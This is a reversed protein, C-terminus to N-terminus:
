TIQSCAGLFSSNVIQKLFSPPPYIKFWILFEVLSFTINCWFQFLLTVINMNKRKIKQKGKARRKRKKVCGPHRCGIFRTVVRQNPSLLGNLKKKKKEKRKVVAVIIIIVVAFSLLFIHISSPFFFAIIVHNNICVFYYDYQTVSKCPLCLALFCCSLAARRHRHTSLRTKSARWLAWM